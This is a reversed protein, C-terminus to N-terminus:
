MKQNWKFARGAKKFDEETDLEMWKGKIMVPIITYGRDVLEQFMDTLYAKELSPATHFPAGSGIKKKALNYHKKLIEAGKKSFKALGIFEGQADTSSISKAIKAVKGNKIVVKEAEEVPHQFRDKYQKEWESDVIISIDGRSKLLAEVVSKEYLIDSYSAIFEGTMEAEAIMLSELINNKRYNMNYVYKVGTYNIKEKKYGRIVIIEKIGCQHFAEVQRQLLTEGGIELMCKPKDDTLEMMRASMGAALIIAKAHNNKPKTGKFYDAIIEGAFERANKNRKTAEQKLRKWVEPEIAINRQMDM